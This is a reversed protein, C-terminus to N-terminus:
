AQQLLRDHGSNEANHARLMGETHTVMKIAMSRVM